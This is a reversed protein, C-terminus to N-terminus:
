LSNSNESFNSVIEQGDRAIVDKECVCSSVFKRLHTQPNLSGLYVIHSASVAYMYPTPIKKAFDTSPALEETRRFM